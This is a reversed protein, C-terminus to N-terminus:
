NSEEDSDVEMIELKKVGGHFLMGIMSEFDDYNTYELTTSYDIRIKYMTVEKYTM